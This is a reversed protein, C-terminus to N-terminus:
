FNFEKQNLMEKEKIFNIFYYATNKYFEMTETAAKFYQDGGNVYNFQLYGTDNLQPEDSTSWNPVRTCMIYKATDTFDKNIDEFVYVTYTGSTVAVLKCRITQM